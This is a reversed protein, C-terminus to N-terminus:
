ATRKPDVGKQDRLFELAAKADGAFMEWSMFDNMKAVDKPWAAAYPPTARKDFRLTIIGEQELREAIEKLLDVQFSAQNGDRDTPGSGPILLVAQGTPMAPTLLTGQLELGGVGKFKVEEGRRAAPTKSPLGNNVVTSSSSASKPKEGGCALTLAPIL